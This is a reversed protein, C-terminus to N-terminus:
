RARMFLLTMFPLETRAPTRTDIFRTEISFRDDSPVDLVIAFEKDLGMATMTPDDDTGYMAIRSGETDGTGAATVFYTGTDDMAVVNFVGHRRDFGFTYIAHRVPGQELHVEVELFRGGLRLRATATGTPQDAAVTGDPGAIQVTWEGQLAVLRRHEPGPQGQEPDQAVASRPLLVLIAGALVAVATRHARGSENTIM